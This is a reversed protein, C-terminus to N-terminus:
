VHFSTTHKSNISISIHFHKLEYYKYVACFKSVTNRLICLIKFLYNKEFVIKDFLMNLM